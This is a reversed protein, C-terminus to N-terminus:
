MFVPSDSLWLVWTWISRPGRLRSGKDDFEAIWVVRGGRAQEFYRSPVDIRYSGSAPGNVRQHRQGLALVGYFKESGRTVIVRRAGRDIAERWKSPMDKEGLGSREMAWALHFPPAFPAGASITFSGDEATISLGEGVLSGAPIPQIGGDIYRVPPVGMCGALMVCAVAVISRAGIRMAEAGTNSLEGQVRDIKCRASRNLPTLREIDFLHKRYRGENLIARRQQHPGGM